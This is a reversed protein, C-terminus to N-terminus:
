VDEMLRTLEDCEAECADLLTRTDGDASANLAGLAAEYQALFLPEALHARLHAALERTRQARWLADAKDTVRKLGFGELLKYMLAPVGGVAGAAGVIGLKTTLVGGFLTTTGGTVCLDVVIATGGIVALVDTLSGAVTSLWFNREIWERVHRRVAHEWEDEVAPVPQRTFAKVVRRCAAMSVDAVRAHAANERWLDVLSEAAAALREQELEERRRLAPRSARGRLADITGRLLGYVHRCQRTVWTVPRLALRIAMPRSEQVCELVIELLQGAVFESGAIRAAHEDIQEDVHGILQELEARRERAQECLARCSEVGLATIEALNSLLIQAADRGKLLDDFAPTSEGLPLLVPRGDAEVRESYYVPSGALFQALTRGDQRRTAFGPLDEKARRLLDDWRARAEDRPSKSHVYALLGAERCCHELYSVLRDDIYSEPYAVLVVIEARALMREARAWNMREVSNMDPVDVLVLLVSDNRGSDYAAWFLANGPSEEDSLQQPRALRHTEFSPFLSNVHGEQACARPLAAACAYTMPRKVNSAPVDIGTLAKFLTSKGGGTPGFLTAVLCPKDDFLPFNSPKGCLAQWGPLAELPQADGLATHLRPVLVQLRQVSARFDAFVKHLERTV